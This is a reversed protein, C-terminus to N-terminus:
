LPEAGVNDNIESSDDPFCRCVDKADPDAKCSTLSPCSGNCNPALGCYKHEFCRCGDKPNSSEPECFPYNPHDKCSGGCAPADSLFCHDNPFCLCAHYISRRCSTLSPCSGNCNPAIGCPKYAFCDCSESFVPGCFPYDPNKCSGGCVPFKSDICSPIQTPQAECLNTTTNCVPTAGSCHSNNTCQVCRGVTASGVINCIPTNPTNICDASTFCGVCSQPRDCCYYRLPAVDGPEYCTLKKGCYLRANEPSSSIFAECGSASNFLPCCALNNASSSGVFPRNQSSAINNVQFSFIILSVIFLSILKKM